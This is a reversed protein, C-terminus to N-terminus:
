SEAYRKYLNELATQYDDGTLKSRLKGIAEAADIVAQADDQDNKVAWERAVKIVSVESINM